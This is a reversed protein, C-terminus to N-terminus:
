AEEGAIVGLRAKVTPTAEGRDAQRQELAQAAPNKPLSRRFRAHDNEETQSFSWCAGGRRYATSRTEAEPSSGVYWLWVRLSCGDRIVWLRWEALSM